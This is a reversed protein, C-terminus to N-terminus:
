LLDVDHLRWSGRNMLVRVSLITELRTRKRGTCGLLWRFLYLTLTSPGTQGRADRASKLIAHMQCLYPGTEAVLAITM